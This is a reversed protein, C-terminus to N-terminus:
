FEPFDIGENDEDLDDPFLKVVAQDIHEKLKLTAVQSAQMIRDLDIKLAQVEQATFNITCNRNGRPCFYLKM